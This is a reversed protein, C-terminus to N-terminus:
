ESSTVRGTASADIERGGGRTRFGDSRDAEAASAARRTLRLPRARNGPARQLLDRDRQLLRAGARSTARDGHAAAAPEPLRHGRAARSLARRRWAAAAGPRASGARPAGATHRRAAVAARRAADACRAGPARLGGVAAVLNPILDHRRKLQVDVNSWAQRVRQRLDILSNYIMWLWAFGWLAMYVFSVVLYLPIRVALELPAGEGAFVWPALWLLLGLVSLGWFWHRFGGAVQAESRTSILFLPAHKEAAIEPAVVDQRERAPGVVYVPAHLPIAREVFRREHDSNMVSERPGKGYYLPNTRGCTQDLVGRPEIKAGDPRVLVLGADDQLYFPSQAAGSAVTTWGSETRTRTKTKGDSDTYTETVTRSWHEDVSWTYWVCPLAALHSLLPQGSEATGKLEVLGIFVGTTKCTPLCDVLRQRRGARLAFILCLLAAGAAGLVVALVGGLAAYVSNLADPRM